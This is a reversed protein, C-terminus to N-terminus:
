AEKDTTKPKTQLKPAEAKPAEAKAAAPAVMRSTVIRARALARVQPSALDAECIEREARPGIVVVGSPLHLELPQNEHNTLLCRTRNEETVRRPERGSIM